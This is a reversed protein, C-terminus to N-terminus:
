QITRGLEANIKAWEEESINPKNIPINDGTEENHAGIALRGVYTDGFGPDDKHEDFYKLLSQHMEVGATAIRERREKEKEKKDEWYQKQYQAVDDPIMGSGYIEDDTYERYEDKVIDMARYFCPCYTYSHAIVVLNSPYSNASHNEYFHTDRIYEERADKFKYGHCINDRDAINKLDNVVSEKTWVDSTSEGSRIYLPLLEDEIIKSIKNAERADEENTVSSGGDLIDIRDTLHKGLKFTYEQNDDAKTKAELALVGAQEIRRQMQQIIADYKKTIEQIMNNYKIVVRKLGEECGLFYDRAEEGRKSKTTMCLRKAFTATIKYDVTKNGEVNIDFGIYDENPIAFANDLINTKAWRSFQGDALELWSYLQRATTYGNEDVQLAIEIPTKNTVEIIESNM